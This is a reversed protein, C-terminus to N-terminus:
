KDSKILSSIKSKSNACPMFSNDAKKDKAEVLTGNTNFRTTPFAENEKRFQRFEFTKNSYFYLSGIQMNLQVTKRKCVNLVMEKLKCLISVVQEQTCDCVNAIAKLNMQAVEKSSAVDPIDEFNDCNQM